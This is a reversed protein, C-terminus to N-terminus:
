RLRRRSSGREAWRASAPLSRSRLFEAAAVYAADAPALQWWPVDVRALARCGVMEFRVTRREGAWMRDPVYGPHWGDMDLCFWLSAAGGNIFVSLSAGPGHDLIAAGYPGRRVSRLRAILEDERWIQCAGEFDLLNV